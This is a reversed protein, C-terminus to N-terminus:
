KLGSLKGAARPPLVRLSFNAFKDKNQEESRLPEWPFCFVKQSFLVQKKTHANWKWGWFTNWRCQNDPLQASVDAPQNLLAAATVEPKIHLPFVDLIANAMQLRSPFPLPSSIQLPLSLTSSHFASLSCKCIRAIQEGQWQICHSPFCLTQKASKCQSGRSEGWQFPPKPLIFLIMDSNWQYQNVSRTNTQNWHSISAKRIHLQQMYIQNWVSSYGLQSELSTNWNM